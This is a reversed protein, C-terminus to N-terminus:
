KGCEECVDYEGYLGRKVTKSNCWWCYERGDNHRPEKSDAIVIEEPPPPWELTVEEDDLGPMPIPKNTKPTFFMTSKEKVKPQDSPTVSGLFM